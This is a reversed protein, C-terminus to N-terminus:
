HREQGNEKKEQGVDAGIMEGTKPDFGFRWMKRFGYAWIEPM